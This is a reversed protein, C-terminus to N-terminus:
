LCSCACFKTRWRCSSKREAFRLEVTFIDNNDTGSYQRSSLFISGKKTDKRIPIFLGRIESTGSKLTIPIELYELDQYPENWKYQGDADEEGGNGSLWATIKVPRGKM